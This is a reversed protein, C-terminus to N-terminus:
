FCEITRGDENIVLGAPSLDHRGNPHRPLPPHLRAVDAKDSQPEHGIRHRFNFAAASRTVRVRRIGRYVIGRGEIGAM